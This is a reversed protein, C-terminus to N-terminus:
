TQGDAAANRRRARPTTRGQAPHRARRERSAAHRPNRDTQLARFRKEGLEQSSRKVHGKGAIERDLLREVGDGIKGQEVGLRHGRADGGRQLGHAFATGDDKLVIVVALVFGIEDAGGLIQGVFRHRQEDAFAAADDAQAEGVLFHAREFQRRHDRAVLAAVARGEGDRDLRALAHARAHRGGVAHRRDARGDRGARLGGVDHAGAVHERQARLRAAHERAAAMGFAGDVQRREGTQLGGAHQAFQHIRVARHRAALLDVVERLQVIQRHQRDGLQRCEAGREGLHAFAAGFQHLAREFRSPAAPRRERAARM